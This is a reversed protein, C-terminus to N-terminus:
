RDHRPKEEEGDGTLCPMSRKLACHIIALTCIFTQPLPVREIRHPRAGSPCKAAFRAIHNAILQALRPENFAWERGMSGLQSKGEKGDRMM